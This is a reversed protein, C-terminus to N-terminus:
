GASQEVATLTFTGATACLVFYGGIPLKVDFPSGSTQNLVLGLQVTSAWTMTVTGTSCTLGAASSQRVQLTCASAALLTTANQCSPSITTIAAKTVDTAQYATSVALTRAAPASFNFPSASTGNTGAIGPIGQIGQAGTAGQPGAPGTAGTNGTSGAVGQPGAAGTDGKAGAPGTLGIPGQSGTPGAPGTAGAPGATGGGTVSLTTGDYSLGAGLIAYGAQPITGPPQNNTGNFMFIVSSGDTPTLPIRTIYGTNTPNRQMFSIDNADALASGASCLLAAILLLKKM